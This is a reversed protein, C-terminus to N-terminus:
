RAGLGRLVVRVTAFMISLDFFLSLHKVYYLDYQHKELADEKTAGYRYKVQALGTLGPKVTHRLAYYPICEELDTVFVQREPRPGVFSMEGRLVNFLQPLEDLRLKRLWRGLGTVRPDGEKAWVAGTAAEANQCMSRFKFVDFLVGEAGVREQRYFVPGRSDMKILLPLILFFPLSLVLGLFAATVDLIRKGFSILAMRKFGEGFILDSPNLSEVWMKGYIQEYFSVAKVVEIGEVRLALLLDVPLTGRRNDIAVVVKKIGQSAITKKIRQLAENLSNKSSFAWEFYLFQFGLTGYKAVADKFTKMSAGSGIVLITSGIKGQKRLM